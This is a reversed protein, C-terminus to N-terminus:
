GGCGGGECCGVGVNRGERGEEGLETWWTM